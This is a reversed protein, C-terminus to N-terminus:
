SYSKKQWFLKKYRDYFLSSLKKDQSHIHNQYKEYENKSKWNDRKIPIIQYLPTGKPILGEFGKKIFFSPSNFGVWNYVDSDVIAPLTIFPLETHYMPHCYLVSYGTPTKPIWFRKWDFMVDECGMPTPLKQKVNQNRVSMIEPSSSFRYIIENNNKEIYIDTWSKQIYGCNISDLVPICSKITLEVKNNENFSPKNSDFFRFSKKYWEPVFKSSPVPPDILDRTNEDFAIFEIKKMNNKFPLSM